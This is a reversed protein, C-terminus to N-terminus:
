GKSLPGNWLPITSSNATVPLWLRASKEMASLIPVTESRFPLYGTKTTCARTLIWYPTLASVATLPTRRSTKHLLPMTKSDWNTKIITSCISLVAWIRVDPNRWSVLTTQILFTWVPECNTKGWSLWLPISTVTASNYRNPFGTLTRVKWCKKASPMINRWITQITWMMCGKRLNWMWNRWLTVCTMVRCTRCIWTWVAQIASARSPPMWGNPKSSWWVTPLRRGMFPKPQPM